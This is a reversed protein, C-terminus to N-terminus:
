WPDELTVPYDKSSWGAILLEYEKSDAKFENAVASGIVGTGGIILIKQPMEHNEVTETFHNYRWLSSESQFHM